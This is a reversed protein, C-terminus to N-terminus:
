FEKTFIRWVPIMKERSEDWDMVRRFKLKLRGCFELLGHEGDPFYDRLKSDEIQVWKFGDRLRKTAWRALDRLIARQITREVTDM